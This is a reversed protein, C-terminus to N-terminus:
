RRSRATELHQCLQTAGDLLRLTPRQLLDAPVMFLNNRQVAQMTKWNRWDDLGIPTDYGMGSAIIAEPNAAIVAERSVNPAKASLGAFINEGGCVQIVEDIIQSSGVTMLPQHWAQYFVKVPPRASYHKRLGLLRQRFQSATQRAVAETGALQGLKEINDAIDDLRDPQTQYVKLGLSRLRKLTVDANGSQWVVVLDPKLAVITELDPRAYNGVNPLRRAAPPYDSYDVVGVLLHGAGAAYLNETAHPALSVIRGAPKSLKVTAGTDDVVAVEAQAQATCLLMVLSITRFLTMDYGIHHQAM